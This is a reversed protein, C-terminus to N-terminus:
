KYTKQLGSILVDLFRDMEKQHRRVFEMFEDYTIEGAIGNAYNDVVSINAYEMDLERALTAESAMNMGVVDAMTSFFRIEAKTEFRPGTTQIYIGGFRIPFGHENGIELVKQRLHESLSPTIHKTDDQLFTPIGTLQIFDEPLMFTGPEIEKKLSGVSTIGLINGVGLSKLASINGHHNVRHPPRVLSMGHRPILLIRGNESQFVEVSGHDTEIKREHFAEFIRSHFLNTGGIIGFPSIEDM